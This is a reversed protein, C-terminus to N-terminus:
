AEQKLTVRYNSNVLHYFDGDQIIDDVPMGAALLVIEKTVAPAEFVRGVNKGDTTKIVRLKM